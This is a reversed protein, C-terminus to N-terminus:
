GGASQGSITVRDPDGGFNRINEHVWRILLAQDKLGNNGPIVDDGTSLFGLAGLRNEHFYAYIKNVFRVYDISFM